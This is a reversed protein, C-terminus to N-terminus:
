RRVNSQVCNVVSLTSNAIITASTRVIAHWSRDVHHRSRFQWTTQQKQQRSAFPGWSTCAQKTERVFSLKVTSAFYEGNEMRQLIEVISRTSNAIRLITEEICDGGRVPHALITFCGSAVTPTENQLQWVSRRGLGSREACIPSSRTMAAICDVGNYYPTTSM